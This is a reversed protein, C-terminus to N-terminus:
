YENYDETDTLMTERAPQGANLLAVYLRESHRYVGTEVALYTLGFAVAVLGHVPTLAVPDGVAPLGHLLGEVVGYVAAYVAIAPLAVLPVSGYRVVPPVDSQRVVERAAQLVTLVVLGALLLGGDLATGKGTLVAFLGGGALATLAVVAVGVPGTAGDRGDVTPSTHEVRDGSALFQYAKYFGHLVLHTIAAGFFGLGAQVLMFGMQGVTSCGLKGKIDTQVTKLLKGGLASAVGVLVVALMVAAEVTVVPAFRVLLIGGANVFGAHMLASAPTPATMSSLLWRHFPVLASQVTAAVVLAGAALLVVPQSATAVGDALASVTTAGTEWWLTALAVGLLASSALFYRRALAGAARAQPWGEVHGILDAMLLGMALWALWFLVLSDAAVLLLVVLTFAFVRGFFRDITENGAMYRRAYSHVIGGFFTVATWLVVTLGDVAVVGALEWGEGRWWRAALVVLSAAWLLWVVRTLTAPLRARENTPTQLQGVATPREDGTM